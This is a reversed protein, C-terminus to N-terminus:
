KMVCLVAISFFGPKSNVSFMQPSIWSLLNGLFMWLIPSDALPPKHIIRLGKLIVVAVFDPDNMTDWRMESVWGQQYLQLSAIQM